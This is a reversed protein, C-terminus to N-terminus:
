GLAFRCTRSSSATSNVIATHRCTMKSLMDYPSPKCVSRMTTSPYHAHTMALAPANRALGENPYATCPRSHPHKNPPIAHVRSVVCFAPSQTLSVKTGSASHLFSETVENIEQYRFIARRGRGKRPALAGSTSATCRQTVGNKEAQSLACQDVTGGGGHPM